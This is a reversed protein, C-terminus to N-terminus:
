VFGASGSVRCEAKYDACFCSCKLRNIRGLSDLHDEAIAALYGCVSHRGTVPLLIRAMRLASVEFRGAKGWM